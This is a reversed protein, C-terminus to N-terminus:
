SHSSRLSCAIDEMELLKLTSDDNAGIRVSDLKHLLAPSAGQTKLSYTDILFAM